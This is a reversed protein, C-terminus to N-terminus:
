PHLYTDLELWPLNAILLLYAVATGIMWWGLWPVSNSRDIDGGQTSM